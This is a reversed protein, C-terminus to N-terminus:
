EGELRGPSVLEAIENSLEDGRDAV